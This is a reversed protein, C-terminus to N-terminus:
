GNYEEVTVLDDNWLDNEKFYKEAGPHVPVGDTILWKTAFEPDVERLVAHAERVQEANDLLAKVFEYAAETSAEAPLVPAYGNSVATFTDVGVDQNFLDASMETNLTLPVRFEQAEEQTIGWDLISFEVTSDLEQLWGLVIDNLTYGVCADIRGERMAAPQDSYGIPKVDFKQEYDIGLLELGFRISDWTSTGRPGLSISTGEPLGSVTQVNSLRDIDRKMVFINATFYSFLQTMTSELPPENYPSVGQNAMWMLPVATMGIDIKGQDVLRINTVTGGTTQASVDLSESHESVITSM